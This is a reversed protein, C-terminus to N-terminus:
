GSGVDPYGWDPNKYPLREAQRRKYPPRESAAADHEGDSSAQWGYGEAFTLRSRGPGDETDCRCIETTEQRGEMKGGGGVETLRWLM